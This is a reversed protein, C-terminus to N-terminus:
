AQQSFLDATARGAAPYPFAALLLAAAAVVVVRVFWSGRACFWGALFAVLPPVATAYLRAIDEARTGVAGSTSATVAFGIAAIAIVGLLLLGWRRQSSGTAVGIVFVVLLVVAAVGVGGLITV